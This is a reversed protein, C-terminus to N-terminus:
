LPIDISKKSRGCKRRFVQGTERIWKNAVWKSGLLVPCGAHATRSDSDGNRKVNYWFAAAGKEVPVTINMHIYVTAGGAEVENLYFMWTAIRDGAGYLDPKPDNQRYPNIHLSNGFHDLHQEYMGGIGYNLIQLSEADFPFSTQMTSLGTILQVRQTIKRISSSYTDPLWATESVRYSLMYEKGSLGVVASTELMHLAENKLYNQESESIVDHFLSIRPSFCLIEEKARYIPVFTQRYICKLKSTVAAPQKIDGRCLAEYHANSLDQDDPRLIATRDELPISDCQIQVNKLDRELMKNNPNLDVEKKLIQESIWPMGLQLYASALKRSATIFQQNDYLDPHMEMQKFYQQLWIIEKYYAGINKLQSCIYMVQSYTLVDTNQNLIKGSFLDSLDLQYTQWLRVIAIASFACDEETVRIGVASQMEIESIRYWLGNKPCSDCYYTDLFTGWDAYMRQLFHFANIPNELYHPAITAHNLPSCREEFDRINQNVIDGIKEPEEIYERLATLLRNEVQALLEMKSVATFVGADISTYFLQILIYVSLLFVHSKLCCKRM